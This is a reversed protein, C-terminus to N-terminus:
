GTEMGIQWSTRAENWQLLNFFDEPTFKLVSQVLRRSCIDVQVPIKLAIVDLKDLM